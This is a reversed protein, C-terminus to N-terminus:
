REVEWLLVDYADGLFRHLKTAARECAKYIREATRSDEDYGYESAWDEFSRANEIGAADSALCELVDSAEPDRHWGSGTSFAVTMQRGHSRFLCKYHNMNPDPMNPNTDAYDARMTIGHMTIYEQMNM